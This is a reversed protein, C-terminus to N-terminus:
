SSAIGLRGSRASPCVSLHVRFDFLEHGLEGHLFFNGHDVGLGSKCGGAHGTEADGVQPHVVAGHAHARLDAVTEAIEVQGVIEGGGHGSRKAQGGSEVGGQGGFVARDDALFRALAALVDHEAGAQADLSGGEATAVEFVHAFVGEERRANSDIVDLALLGLADGGAGLMKGGVVLFNLAAGDVDEHVLARQALNIQGGEAGGDLFAARQADHAGVILEAPLVAALIGVQEILDEFLFPAELSQDHRVPAADVIGVLGGGVAHVQFHSRARGIVGGVIQGGGIQCLELGAVKGHCREIVFHAAAKIHHEM